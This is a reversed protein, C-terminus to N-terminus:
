KRRHDADEGVVIGTRNTVTSLAVLIRIGSYNSASYWGCPVITDNVPFLAKKNVILAAISNTIKINNFRTRKIIPEM